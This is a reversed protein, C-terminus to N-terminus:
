PRRTSQPSSTIPGLNTQPCVSFASHTSGAPTPKCSQLLTTTFRYRSALARSPDSGIFWRHHNDFILCYKSCHSFASKVFPFCTIRNNPPYFDPFAGSSLLESEQLLFSMLVWHFESADNAIAKEPEFMSSDLGEFVLDAEFDFSM